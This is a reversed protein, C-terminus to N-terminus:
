KSLPLVDVSVDLTHEGGGVFVGKLPCVDGYDRGWALTIHEDTVPKNNTPDFDIWGLEGGFVSVWAHSADAGM